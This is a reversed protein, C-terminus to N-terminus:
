VGPAPLRRPPASSKRHVVQPYPATSPGRGAGRQGIHPPV